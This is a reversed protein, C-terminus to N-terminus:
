DIYPDLDVKARSTVKGEYNMQVYGGGESCVLIKEEALLELGCIAMGKHPQDEFPNIRLKEKGSKMNWVKISGESRIYSL